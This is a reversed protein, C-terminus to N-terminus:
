PASSPRECARRVRPALPSGPHADLFLRAEGRGAAPKGAECLAIARYGRRESALQGDPFRRAHDALRALAVDPDGTDLATKAATILEVEAALAAALADVPADDNAHADISPDIPPGADSSSDITAARGRGDDPPTAGDRTPAIADSRVPALEAPIPRADGLEAPAPRPADSSSAVRVQGNPSSPTPDRLALGVSLSAGLALAALIGKTGAGALAGTAATAAGAGPALRLALLAAVRRSAGADATTARKTATVLTAEDDVLGLETLARTLERRAAKIRSYATDVNIGLFEAVEPGRLDEFVHLTLATRKDDDLRDLARLLLASRQAQEVSAALDGAPTPPDDALARRRTALRLASRRHRFAVRRVIGFLWSRLASRGEFGALRRHVTIFVDQAADDVAADPVGLRLLCAYVFGFHERYVAEFAPVEGGSAMTTAVGEVQAM